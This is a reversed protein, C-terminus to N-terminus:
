KREPQMTVMQYKARQLARNVIKQREGHFKKRYESRLKEIRRIMEDSAKIAIAEDATLVARWDWIRPRPKWVM